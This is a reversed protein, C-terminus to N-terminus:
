SRHILRASSMLKDVVRNAVVQDSYPGFSTPTLGADATSADLMFVQDDIRLQRGHFKRRDLELLRYNKFEQRFLQSVADIGAVGFDGGPKGPTTVLRIELSRNLNRLYLGFVSEKMYRDLMHVCRQATSVADLMHMYFAFPQEAESLSVQWDLPVRHVLEYFAKYVGDLINRFRVQMEAPTSSLTASGLEMKFDLLTFDGFVLALNDALSGLPIGGHSAFARAHDAFVVEVAKSMALVKLYDTVSPPPMQEALLRLPALIMGFEVTLRHKQQPKDLDNFNAGVTDM